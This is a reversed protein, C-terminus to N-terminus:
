RWFTERGPLLFSFWHDETYKEFSPQLISYKERVDLMFEVTDLCDWMRRNVTSQPPTNSEQVTNPSQPFFEAHSSNHGSITELDTLKMKLELDPISRDTYRSLVGMVADEIHERRYLQSSTPSQPASCTTYTISSEHKSSHSGTTDLRSSPLSPPSPSEVSIYRRCLLAETPSTTFLSTRGRLPQMLPILSSFSRYSTEYGVLCSVARIQHHRYLHFYFPLIPSVSIAPKLTSLQVKSYRMPILPSLVTGQRFLHCMSTSAFRNM